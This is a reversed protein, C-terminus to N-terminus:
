LRYPSAMAERVKALKRQSEAGQRDCFLYNIEAQLLFDNARAFQDSDLADDADDLLQEVIKLGELQWDPLVEQLAECQRRCYQLDRQLEVENRDNM